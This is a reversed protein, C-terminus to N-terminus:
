AVGDLLDRASGGKGWMGRGRGTEGNGATFQKAAFYSRITRRGVDVGTHAPAAPFAKGVNGCDTAPEDLPRHMSILCM